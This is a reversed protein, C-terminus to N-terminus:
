LEAEAVTVCTTFRFPGPQLPKSIQRELIQAARRRPRSKEQPAGFNLALNMECFHYGKGLIHNGDWRSFESRAVTWKNESRGVRMLCHARVAPNSRQPM